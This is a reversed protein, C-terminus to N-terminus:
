HGAFDCAAYVNIGAARILSSGGLEPLDVIAAAEVIEAGLRRILRAAALMTGGTAVLDDVLLVRDGPCCADAHIEVCATGYELAYDESVTAFPLKGKKRVPIFGVGMEYALAAGLIFGRADIGAVYDPPRTRYREALLGILLRFAKPDQLLPTIDRFCIGAQPWDPVTRIAKRIIHTPM